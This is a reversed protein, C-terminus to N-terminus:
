DAAAAAAEPVETSEQENKASRRKPAESAEVPDQIPIAGDVAEVHELAGEAPQAAAEPDRAVWYQIRGEAWTLICRECLHIVPQDFWDLGETFCSVTMVSLVMDDCAQCLNTNAM